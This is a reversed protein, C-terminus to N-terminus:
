TVLTVRTHVQSHTHICFQWTVYKQWEEEERERKGDGEKEVKYKGQEGKNDGM